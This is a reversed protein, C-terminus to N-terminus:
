LGIDWGKSRFYIVCLVISPAICYISYTILETMFCLLFAAIAGSFFGLMKAAREYKEYKYVFM